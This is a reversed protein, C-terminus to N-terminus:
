FDLRCKIVLKWLEHMETSSCWKKVQKGEEAIVDDM